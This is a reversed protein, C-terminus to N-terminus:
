CDNPFKEMIMRRYFLDKSDPEIPKTWDNLKNFQSGVAYSWNSLEISGLEEETLVVRCPEEEKKSGDDLVIVHFSEINFFVCERISTGFNKAQIDDATMSVIAKIKVKSPQIVQTDIVFWRLHKFAEIRSDGMCLVDGVKINKAQKNITKLVTM